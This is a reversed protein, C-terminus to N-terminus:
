YRVVGLLLLVILIVVLVISVLYPPLRNAVVGRPFGTIALVILVILLIDFRTLM